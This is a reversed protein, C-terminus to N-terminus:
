EYVINGTGNNVFYLGLSFQSQPSLKDLLLSNSVVTSLIPSIRSYEGNIIFDRENLLQKALDGTVTVTSAIETAYRLPDIGVGTVEVTLDSSEIQTENVTNSFVEETLEDKFHQEVTSEITGNSETYHKQELLGAPCCCNFGALSTMEKSRKGLLIYTNSDDPSDIVTTHTIGILSYKKDIDNLKRSAEKRQKELIEEVLSDTYLERHSAVTYYSVPGSKIIGDSIDTTALVEGDFIENANTKEIRSQLKNLGKQNVDTKVDQNEDETTKTQLEIKQSIWEPRTIITPDIIKGTDLQISMHKSDFKSAAVDFLAGSRELRNYFQYKDITNRENIM